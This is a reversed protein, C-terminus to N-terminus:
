NTYYKKLLEKIDKSINYKEINELMNDYHKLVDHAKIIEKSYDKNRMISNETQMYFYGYINTSVVTKANVIILPTLGFDEHYKNITNYKFNNQIFFERRYLYICAVELFNDKGALKKFAEEGICKDFVPGDLNAIINGDMDITKMKFKILDVDDNMYSELNEFLTNEIYDDSDLFMIYKGTAKSFGFNRTDSLGGNKKKYYQVNQEKNKSIWKQIIYESNDTSGDNVIIIELDKMTQDKISNLCKKIYKETNYVPIIISIQPM